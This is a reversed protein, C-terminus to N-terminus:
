GGLGGSLRMMIKVLEAQRTVGTKEYVRALQFRVTNLAVRSADAAERMTMGEFISTAVRAEAHTLGFLARLQDEPSRVEAELDTVTVLATRPAGFVYMPLHPIPSVRVALPFRRGPRALSMAGGVQPAEARTAACLLQDLRIAAESTQATLRGGLVTLGDHAALLREGAENTLRMAGTEDVLYIPQPSARLAQALDREPGLTTALSRGFKYARILHPQLRTAAELDQREFRGKATARGINLAAIKTDTLEFRIFMAANVGRPLMYGNCFDSRQYDDWDICDAETLVKPRWNRFYDAKDPESLLVFVNVSQYDTYVQRFRPDSRSLIWDGGANRVDLRSLMSTTGGVMDAVGDM